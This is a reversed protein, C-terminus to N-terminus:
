FSFFFHCARDINWVMEALSARISSTFFHLCTPQFTLLIPSEYYGLPDQWHKWSQFPIGNQYLRYPINPLFTSTEKPSKGKQWIKLRVEFSYLTIIKSFFQLLCSWSTSLKFLCKWLADFILSLTWGCSARPDKNLFRKSVLFAASLLVLFTCQM